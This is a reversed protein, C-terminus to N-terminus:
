FSPIDVPIGSGDFNGEIPEDVWPMGNECVETTPKAPRKFINVMFM